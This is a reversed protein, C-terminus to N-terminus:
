VDPPRMVKVAVKGVKKFLRGIGCGQCKGKKRKRNLSEQNGKLRFTSKYRDRKKQFDKRKQLDDAPDTPVKRIATVRKMPITQTRVPKSGVDRNIGPSSSLPSRSNISQLSPSPSLPVNELQLSPKASTDNSIDINATHYTDSSPQKSSTSPSLSPSPSKPRSQTQEKYNNTLPPTIPPDSISIRYSNLRSIQDNM